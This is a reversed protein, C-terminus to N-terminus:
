FRPALFMGQDCARDTTPVSIGETQCGRPRQRDQPMKRHHPPRPPTTARFDPAPHPPGPQQTLSCGEWYGAPTPPGQPYLGPQPAMGWVLERLGKEDTLFPM